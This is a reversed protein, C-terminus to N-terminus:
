HAHAAGSAVRVFPAPSHVAHWSQGEAPIDTWERRGSECTQVVPFYLTKGAEDPLKMVIGFTDYQSDPLSNGSWQVATVVEAITTGHEGKLPPDLPRREIDVHWGPKMQPKVSTVGDPMAVRLAVTPSGDCGHPVKLATEFYSGAAGENPQATIHAHACLSTAVGAILTIAAILTLRGCGHGRGLFPTHM